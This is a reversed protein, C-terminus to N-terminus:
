PTKEEGEANELVEAKRRQTWWAMSSTTTGFDIGIFLALSM